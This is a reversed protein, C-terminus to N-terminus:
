SGPAFVIRFSRGIAGEPCYTECLPCFTCAAPRTIVAKNDKLEVANTPCLEM